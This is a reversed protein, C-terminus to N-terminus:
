FLNIFNPGDKQIVGYLVDLKNVWNANVQVISDNDEFFLPQNLLLYMVNVLVLIRIYLHTSM